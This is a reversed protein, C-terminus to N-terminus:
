VRRSQNPPFTFISDYDYVVLATVNLYIFEFLLWEHLCEMIEWWSIKPRCKQPNGFVNKWQNCVPFAFNASVTFLIVLFKTMLTSKHFSCNFWLLTYLVNFFGCSNKNMLLIFLKSWWTKETTMDRNIKSQARKGRLSDLVCNPHRLIRNYLNYHCLFQLWHDFRFGRFLLINKIMVVNNPRATGACLTLVVDM